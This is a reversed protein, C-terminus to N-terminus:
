EGWDIKLTDTYERPSDIDTCRDWVEHFVTKERQGSKYPFGCWKRYIYWATGKTTELNVQYLTKAVKDHEAASFTFAFIEASNGVMMMKGRHALIKKITTAGYITDGFLIITQEHWISRTHLVTDAITTRYDEPEFHQLEPTADRLVQRHTVIIPDYNADQVQRVIRALITEDGGKQVLFLQRPPDTEWPMPPGACLVLVAVGEPM